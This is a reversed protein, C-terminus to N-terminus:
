SANFQLKPVFAFKLLAKSREGTVISTQHLQIEALHVLEPESMFRLSRFDGLMFRKRLLSPQVIQLRKPGLSSGRDRPPPASAPCSCQKRYLLALLGRARSEWVGAGCSRTAGNELSRGTLKKSYSRRRELGGSDIASQHGLQTRIQKDSPRTRPRDGILYARRVRRPGGVLGGLTWVYQSSKSKALEIQTESWTFRLRNPFPPSLACTFPKGTSRRREPKM